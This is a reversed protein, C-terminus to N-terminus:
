IPFLCVYVYTLRAGDQVTANTLRGRGQQAGGRAARGRVAGGFGHDDPMNKEVTRKM